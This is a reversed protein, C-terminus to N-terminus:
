KGPRLVSGIARLGKLFFANVEADQRGLVYAHHAYAAMGRMGLLILTKLSRIDENAGWLAQMDMDGDAAGLAKKEADVKACLAEIVPDDFNVNTVCTLLADMVLKGTAETARGKEAAKALGVLKGTLKDQLLATDPKKGCVGAKTCGTNGATEQCQYCFMNM